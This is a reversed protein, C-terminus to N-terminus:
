TASRAGYTIAENVEQAQYSSRVKPGSLVSKFGLAMAIKHYRKFQEISIFEKVPYHRESPALYQGITLIDCSRYRLDEMTHIVEEQTEGLGLIISSKTALYPNIEKAKRLIDLSVAYNAKPRLAEYLRKVMEINHALVSPQANIVTKLSVPNGSFDPILVEIEINKNIRHILKVVKVFQAAGGDALDDRTVSTIVVFELNLMKVIQAIRYPEDKDVSLCEAGSKNTNRASDVACFRCNRTCTNGLIMFTFKLNRFCYSLNPCKAQKCVTNIKWESLMRLRELVTNDPIEQKFWAPLRNIM